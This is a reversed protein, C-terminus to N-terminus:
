NPSSASAACDAAQFPSTVTIPNDDASSVFNLGAGLVTAATSTPECGTPNLTFKPRDVYSRVGRRM